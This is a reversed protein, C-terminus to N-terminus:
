HKFSSSPPSLRSLWGTTTLRSLMHSTHHVERPAATCTVISQIPTTPQRAQKRKGDKSAKAAQKADRNLQVDFYGPASYTHLLVKGGVPLYDPPVNEFASVIVVSSSDIAGRRIDDDDHAALGGKAEASAM